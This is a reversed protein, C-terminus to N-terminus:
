EGQRPDDPQSILRDFQRRLTAGTRQLIKVPEELAAQTLIQISEAIRIGSGLRLLALKTEVTQQSDPTQANLKGAGTLFLTLVVVAALSIRM